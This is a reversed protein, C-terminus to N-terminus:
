LYHKLVDATQKNAEAKAKGIRKAQELEATEEDKGGGGPRPDDKMLKEKISKELAAKHKEGNAFVKQMDGEAMAKATDAALDKDYGLALYKATYESITKDKLLSDKDKTLADIQEQLKALTDQDEAKKRDDDSMKERLQKSLSAAESAKKDFTEKSVYKTLDVAEPIELKLVADLKQEATMGDFGEIKSTDINPM